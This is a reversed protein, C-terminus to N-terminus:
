IIAILKRFLKNQSAYYHIYDKVNKSKINQFVKKGLEKKEFYGAFFLLEKLSNNHFSQKINQPYSYKKAMYDFLNRMQNNLFSHNEFTKKHSYSTDHVRYTVLSKTIRSFNTNMIMDVLIPYDEITLNMKFYTEFDVYQYLLDKNYCLGVPIIKGMLVANLYATKSATIISRNKFRIIRGNKDDLRDYGCDVFGINTDKQLADVMIQLANESQIIDDGAIDFVYKGNCRDLTTKFNKLIGLQTKNRKLKILTPYKLKYKTLIDLTNDTSCDDGIVIEYEFNVKQNVISELTVEIHKENNYTLLHVSLLTM